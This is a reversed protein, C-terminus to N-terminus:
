KRIVEITGDANVKIIQSPKKPATDGRRFRCVYDVGQKIVDSIEGYHKPTAEGSVNASTSVLPRRLM